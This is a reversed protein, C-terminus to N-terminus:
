VTRGPDDTLGAIRSIMQFATQNGAIPEDFFARTVKRYKLLVRRGEPTIRVWVKRRDSDPKRVRKVLRRRELGDMRATMTNPERFLERALASVTMEGGALELRCLALGQSLTLGTLLRVRADTARAARQFLDLLGLVTPLAVPSPSPHAERSHGIVPM